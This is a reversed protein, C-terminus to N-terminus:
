FYSSEGNKGTRVDALWNLWRYRLTKPAIVETIAVTTHDAKGPIGLTIESLFRLFYFSSDIVEIPKVRLKVGDSSVM